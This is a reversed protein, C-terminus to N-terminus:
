RPRVPSNKRTASSTRLPSSRSHAGVVEDPEDDAGEQEAVEQQGEEKRLTESM